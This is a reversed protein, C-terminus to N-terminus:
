LRGELNWSVFEAEGVQGYRREGTALIVGPQLDTKAIAADDQPHLRATLNVNATNM